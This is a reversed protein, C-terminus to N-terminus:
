NEDKNLNWIYSWKNAGICTLDYLQNTCLCHGLFKSNIIVKFIGIPKIKDNLWIHFTIRSTSIWKSNNVNIQKKVSM